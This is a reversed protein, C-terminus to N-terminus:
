IDQTYGKEFQSIKSLHVNVNTATNEKNFKAKASLEKFNFRCWKILPPMDYLRASYHNNEPNIRCYLLYDACPLKVAWGMKVKNNTVALEFPFFNVFLWTDNGFLAKCQLTKNIGNIIYDTGSIDEEKTVEILSHNLLNQVAKKYIFEYQKSKELCTLFQEYKMGILKKIDFFYLFLSFRFIPTFGAKAWHL